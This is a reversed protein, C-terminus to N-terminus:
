DQIASYIAVLITAIGVGLEIQNTIQITIIGGATAIIVLLLLDTRSRLPNILMKISELATAKDAPPSNTSELNSGIDVSDSSKINSVIEPAVERFAKEIEGERNLVGEINEIIAFKLSRSIIFPDIDYLYSNAHQLYYRLNQRNRSDEQLLAMASALDHYAVTEKTLDSRLIQIFILGTILPLVISSYYAIRFIMQVEQPM